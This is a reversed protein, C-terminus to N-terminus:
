ILFLGKLIGMTCSLWRQVVITWLKNIKEMKHQFLWQNLTAHLASYAFTNCICPFTCFCICLFCPEFRYLINFNSSISVGEFGWNLSSDSISFHELHFQSFHFIQNRIQKQRKLTSIRKHRVNRWKYFLINSKNRKNNIQM